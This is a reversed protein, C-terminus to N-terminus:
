GKQAATKQTAAKQQEKVWAGIEDRFAYGCIGLVAALAVVTLCGVLARRDRRALCDRCLPVQAYHSTSHTATPGPDSSRAPPLYSTGASYGVQVTRLHAQGEPILRACDYCRLM